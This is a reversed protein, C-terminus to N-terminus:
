DKKLYRWAGFLTLLGVAVWVGKSRYTSHEFTEFHYTIQSDSQGRENPATPASLLNTEGNPSVRNQKPSDPPSLQRVEPKAVSSSSSKLVTEAFVICEEVTTPTMVEENVGLLPWASAAGFIPDIVRGNELWSGLMLVRSQGIRKVLFDIDSRVEPSNSSVLYELGTKVEGKLGREVVFFYRADGSAPQKIHGVAVVEALELAVSPRHVTIDALAVSCGILILLMRSLFNIM